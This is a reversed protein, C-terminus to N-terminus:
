ARGAPRPGPLQALPSPRHPSPVPVHRLGAGHVGCPELSGHLHDLAQGFITLAAQPRRPPLDTVCPRGGPQRKHPPLARARLPEAAPPWQEPCATGPCPCHHPGRLLDLWPLPAAGPRGGTLPCRSPILRSVEIKTRSGAQASSVGTRLSGLGPCFNGQAVVPPPPMCRGATGSRLAFAETERFVQLQNSLKLATLRSNGRSFTNVPHSLLYM